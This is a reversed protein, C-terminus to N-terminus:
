TKRKIEKKPRGAPRGLFSILLFVFSFLLFVFLFYLFFFRVKGFRANQSLRADLVKGFGANRLARGSINGAYADIAGARGFARPRGSGHDIPHRKVRRLPKGARRRQGALAALRALGEAFTTFRDLCKFTWDDISISTSICMYMYIYIYICTCIYIYIYIYTHICIHIYTYISM